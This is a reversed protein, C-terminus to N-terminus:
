IGTLLEYQLLACTDARRECHTWVSSITVLLYCELIIKDSRRHLEGKSHRILKTLYSLIVM